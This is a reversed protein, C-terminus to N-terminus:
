VDEADGFGVDMGIRVNPTVYWRVQAFASKSPDGDDGDDEDLNYEQGGLV